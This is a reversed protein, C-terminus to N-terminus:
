RDLGKLRSESEGVDPSGFSEDTADAGVLLASHITVGDARIQAATTRLREASSRGAAVLVVATDAWSELEGVGTTVDAEVLSLLVDASDRFVQLPSGEPVQTTEAGWGESSDVEPTHLVFRLRRPGAQVAVRELNGQEAGAVAGHRAHGTVLGKLRGSSSLDVVLVKRDRRALELAATTVIEGAVRRDDVSVLAVRSCGHAASEVAELLAETLGAVSTRPPWLRTRRFRRRFRTRVSAVVPVGLAAAVDARRRVKDSTLAVFLVLGIGLGTGGVLGSATGLALRRVTSTPVESALDLVHSADLTARTELSTTEIMQQMSAIESILQSRQTLLDAAESQGAPGSTVLQDYQETLEAVQDDLSAIRERYNDALAATQSELQSGRFALYTDALAAARTVGPVQDDGEVTVVLISSSTVDATVTQLFEYPTMELDLREIVAGAVARTTLLSVDNEMALASDSDPDHALLLSVTGTSPTPLLAAATAGLVGGALVFAICLWRSRRLAARLFHLTVLAPQPATYNGQFRSGDEEERWLPDIM